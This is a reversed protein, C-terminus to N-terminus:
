VMIAPAVGVYLRIYLTAGESCEAPSNTMKVFVPALIVGIIAIIIGLLFSSIVATSVTKKAGIEDNAGYYRSLMIKVGVSLGFFTNVILSTISSTSGVSAYAASDAMRALVLMDITNFMDQILTSLVIPITYIILARVISGKTADIKKAHLLKIM